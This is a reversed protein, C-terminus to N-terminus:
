KRSAGTSHKSSAIKVVRDWMKRPVPVVSLRGIRLLDWGTFTSDAKIEDLTVPRPLKSKPRIDVVVLKENDEDPDAYPDSSITVIGVIAREDGTHYLFAQDGKTMSRIHKLATPNTIGNWVTRKERVLDDWSYTSPETKLLWLSM